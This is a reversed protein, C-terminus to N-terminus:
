PECGKRRVTVEGASKLREKHLDSLVILQVGADAGLHLSDGPFLLMQPVASQSMGRAPHLQVSGSAKLIMAAPAVLGLKNYVEEIINLLEQRLEPQDAFDRQIRKDAEDLIERANITGRKS